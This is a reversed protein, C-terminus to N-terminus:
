ILNDYKNKVLDKIEVGYKSSNENYFKGRVDHRSSPMKFFDTPILEKEFKALRQDVDEVKHGGKMKERMAEVDKGFDFGNHFQDMLQHNNKNVFGFRDKKKLLDYTNNKEM